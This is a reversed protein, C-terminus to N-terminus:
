HTLKEALILSFREATEEYMHGDWDAYLDPATLDENESLLEGSTFDLYEFGYTEALSRMEESAAAYSDACARLTEDPVPTTVVVFEIEMRRCYEAMMVFFRRADKQLMEESWERPVISDNWKGPHIAMFGDHEVTQTDTDFNEVGYNKYVDSRKVDLNEPILSWQERYFYWPASFTRFDAKWMKAFFYQVKTGSMRMEGFLGSFTSDVEQATIWYNPDFEYIVRGPAHGATVADKLFFYSDVPFEEGQAANFASRDTVYSLCAPDINTAGHSSGLILDDFTENEIKHLKYRTFTYPILLYNFIANVGMLIALFLIPIAARKFIRM